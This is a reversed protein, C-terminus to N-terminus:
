SHQVVCNLSLLLHVPKNVMTKAAEEAVRNTEHLYRAKSVDGLAAFCRCLRAFGSCAEDYGYHVFITFINCVFYTVPGSFALIICVPKLSTHLHLSLSGPLPFTQLVSLPVTDLPLHFIKNQGM